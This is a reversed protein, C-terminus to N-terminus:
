SVPEDKRVAGTMTRMPLMFAHEQDDYVIVFAGKPPLSIYDKHPVHYKRGDAMFITFPLNSEIISILKERDM